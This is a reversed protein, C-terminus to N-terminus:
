DGRAWGRMVKLAAQAFQEETGMELETLVARNLEDADINELFEQVAKLPDAPIEKTVYVVGELELDEVQENEFELFVRPATGPTFDVSVRSANSIVTDDSLTVTPAKFPSSGAIRVPQTDTM